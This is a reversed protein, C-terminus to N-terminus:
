PRADPPGAGRASDKRGPAPSGFAALDVGAGEEAAAHAAEVVQMVAFAETFDPGADGAAGTRVAKAMRHCMATLAFARPDALDADDLDIEPLRRFRDEIEIPALTPDGRRTGQLRANQPGLGDATIRLRGALGMLDLCFGEGGPACWSVDLTGTAGGQFGV